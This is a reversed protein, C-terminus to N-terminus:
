CRVARLGAWEEAKCMLGVAPAWCRSRRPGGGKGAEGNEGSLVASMSPVWECAGLAKFVPRKKTMLLLQTPM